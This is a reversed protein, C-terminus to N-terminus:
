ADALAAETPEDEDGEPEPALVFGRKVLWKEIRVSDEDRDYKAINKPRITVSRAKKVGDFKVLFVARILKAGASFSTSRATMAAFLDDARRTEVEKHKGGWYRQVEKLKVWEIGDVDTCVLSDAGDDILPQLTFKDGEPFYAPDDFLHSGFVERYLKQEGKTGTNIGIEDQTADYILVDHVEPRYYVSSSEGDKTAGERTMTKGHRVLIWAKGKHDKDPFVFVKSGTGRKHEVFWADLDAQVAAIQKATPAPVDKRVGAKGAFYEFSKPRQVMVEAHMREILAPSKLWVQVAIDAPTSEPTDDLSIGAEKAAELLRDMGDDTAMEHVFYLADAMAPPTKEDPSMLISSLLGYDIEEGSSDPLVLERDALYAAFPALFAILREHAISKLTDPQAFRRPNLTAM